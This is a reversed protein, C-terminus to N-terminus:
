KASVYERYHAVENPDEYESRYDTLDAVYYRVSVRITELELPQQVACLGVHPMVFHGSPHLSPDEPPVVVAPGPPPYLAATVDIGGESKQRVFEFGLESEVDIQGNQLFDGDELHALAM